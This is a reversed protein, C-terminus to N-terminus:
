PTDFVQLHSGRFLTLTGIVHSNQAFRPIFTGGANVEFSGHCEIMGAGTFTGASVTGTLSTVQTSIGLATDFGTCHTRFNTATATGGGFDAKVGEAATDDSVYLIAKFTYKRGATLTTSLTTTQLTTSANTQDTAVYAEGGWQFWRLQGATGSNFEMVGAATRNIGIDGSNQIFNGSIDMYWRRGGAVEFTITSGAATNVNTIYLTQAGLGTGAGQLAIQGYNSGSTVITRIYNSTNTFSGYVNLQQASTSNRQELVNATAGDLLSGGSFTLDVPKLNGATTSLSTGNSTAGSIEGVVNGSTEYLLRTATGSTITTTGVTLGSGGSPAASTWNTGDSTLVNGSTGPVAYTETSAVFNTGNGVIIKRSTAAGAITFGTTFSPTIITPTNNGMVLGSGTEDTIAALLNASSPTGLLTAVGTGLGTVGTSIPLGTANTLVLASPTGLAPTVLTPSTGFVLLGSGTEDGIIGALEASTTTAFQSLPSGTVGCTTCTLTLDGSLAGGGGLPSTTSVTRTSPVGTSSTLYTNADISLTGDGASTKVFGNGTLNSLKAISQSTNVTITNATRTLGTSFTLPVEYATAATFAATGLTGGAGVNLTSGDTGALTLTNSVTFTKNNAIALTATTAPDTLTVKSTKIDTTGNGIVVKGSVLTGTNTVTGSGGGSALITYTNTATCVYAGTTPTTLYFVDGVNCTAPLAAGKRFRYATTNSTQAAACTVLALLLALLRLLRCTM